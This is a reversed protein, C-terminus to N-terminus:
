SQRTLDLLSRIVLDTPCVTELGLEQRYLSALSADHVRAIVRGIQFRRKAKQAIMLNVNDKETVVFLYDVKEDLTPRIFEEILGNGLIREGKFIESLRRFAQQDRDLVTVQHGESDLRNALGSGVRGCGIVMVRM